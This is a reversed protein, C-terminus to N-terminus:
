PDLATLTLEFTDRSGRRDRSVAVLECWLAFFWKQANPEHDPCSCM